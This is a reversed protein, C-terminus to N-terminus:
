TETMCGFGKCASFTPNGFEMRIGKEFSFIREPLETADIIKQLLKTESIKEESYDKIIQNYKEMPNFRRFIDSVYVNISLSSSNGKKNKLLEEFINLKDPESDSAFIIKGELDMLTNKYKGQIFIKVFVLRNSFSYEFNPRQIGYREGKKWVFKEMIFPKGKKPVFGYAWDGDDFYFTRNMIIYKKRVYYIITIHFVVGVTTWILISQSITNFPDEGEFIVLIMCMIFWIIFNIMIPHNSVLLFYNQIFNTKKM